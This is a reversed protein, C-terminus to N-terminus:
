NEKQGKTSASIDKTMSMIQPVLDRAKMIAGVVVQGLGEGGNLVTLDKINAFPKVAAEVIAPMNTAVQQAILGDSGKALADARASMAAAEAEGAAQVAKAQALGRAEAAAAEAQGTARTANANAEAQVRTRAADAEAALKVSEANAAASVKVREADAAASLQVKQAEAQAAAIDADRQGEARVKAAYAEADAPRRVDTELQKATLDARLEATRTEAEVVQQRAIADALPGAQASKKLAADAEAQLEAQRKAAVTRAQAMAIAAAQEKETATQDQQAKAMRAAAEAAAVHPTRILNIYGSPDEIELLQMSDIKLGLNAMETSSAARVEDRLKDRDSLLEEMTMNGVIARLHGAFISHVQNLMYAPDKGLFRRAANAIEGYTDGIKFIVSGEINVDIAQKTRCKITLNTEILNLDLRRVTEIGPIVLTGQGTVIRFRMSEDTGEAESATAGAGKNRGSIILAENPEAVRWSMKFLVFALVLLVLVLVFIPILPALGSFM